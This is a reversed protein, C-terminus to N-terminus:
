ADRDDPQDKVINCIIFAECTSKHNTYGEYNRRKCGMVAPGYREIEDTRANFHDGHQCNECHAAIQEPDPATM